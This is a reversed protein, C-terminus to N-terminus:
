GARWGGAKRGAILWYVVGGIIGAAAAIPLAYGVPPVDTTNELAGSIECGFYSALGVLVGAAAYYIFSRLRLAEGLGILVFAPVIAVAGYFGTAFFSRVFFSVREVRDSDMDAAIIAVALVLGALASAVILGVVIVVIRNLPPM